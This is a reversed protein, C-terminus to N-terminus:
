GQRASVVLDGAAKDHWGQLRGSRDFLPSLYVLLAGVYCFFGGLFPIVARVFSRGLGITAGTNQNVVKIGLAFKGLTAGLLGV